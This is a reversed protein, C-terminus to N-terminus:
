CVRLMKCLMHTHFQIRLVSLWWTWFGIRKSFHQSPGEDQMTMYWDVFPHDTYFDGLAEM